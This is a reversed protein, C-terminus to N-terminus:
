KQIRRARRRGRPRRVPFVEEESAYAERLRIGGRISDLYGCAYLLSTRLREIPSAHKATDSGLKDVVSGVLEDLNGPDLHHAMRNRVENLRGFFPWAPDDARGLLARLVHLVQHFSLRATALEDPARCARAVIDRLREEVLLHGRLIVLTLDDSRELPKRIEDIPDRKM